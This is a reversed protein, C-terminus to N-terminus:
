TGEFTGKCGTMMAHKRTLPYQRCYEPKVDQIGCEYRGNANSLVLWPCKPLLQSTGTEKWIKYTPMKKDSQIIIVKELIDKRGLDTWQKYDNETCDNSYKLNRCCNGCQRCKFKAMETEIWIGKNGTNDNQGVLAQTQFVKSCINAIDSLPYTKESLKKILYEGLEHNRMRRVKSKRGRTILMCNNRGEKTVMSKKDTIIPCLEQFLDFQSDYQSFDIHIADMAQEPTLFILDKENM